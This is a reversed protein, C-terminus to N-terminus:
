STARALNRGWAPFTYGSKTGPSQCAGCGGTDRHRAPHDFDQFLYGLDFVGFEPVLNTWISTGVLMADVVGLKVQNAM